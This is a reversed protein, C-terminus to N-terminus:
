TVTSQLRSPEETWPIEWALISSHTAMVKELPDERGLSQVRTWERSSFWWPGLVVTKKNSIMKPLEAMAPGLFYRGHIQVLFISYGLYFCYTFLARSTKKKKRIIQLLIEATVDTKDLCCIAQLTELARFICPTLGAVLAPTLLSQGAM